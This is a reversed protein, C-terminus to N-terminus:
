AAKNARRKEWGDLALQRAPNDVIAIKPKLERCFVYIAVLNLGSLLGAAPILAPSCTATFKAAKGCRILPRRSSGPPSPPTTGEFTIAHSGDPLDHDRLDHALAVCLKLQPAHRRALARRIAAPRIHAAM